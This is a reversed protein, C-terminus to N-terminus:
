QVEEGGGRDACRDGGAHVDEGGAGRGGGDVPAVEWRLRGREWFLDAGGSVCRRGRSLVEDRVDFRRSVLEDRVRQLHGPRGHGAHVAALHSVDERRPM